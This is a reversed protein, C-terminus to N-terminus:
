ALEKAIVEVTACPYTLGDCQSCNSGWEGNPLTISQPRHLQMVARLAEYPTRRTRSKQFHESEINSLLEDHTM